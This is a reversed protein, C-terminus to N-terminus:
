EITQRTPMVTYTRMMENDEHDLIHCHWVYGVGNILATPDFPYQNVGPAPAGVGTVPSDQPAWRVVIRTVEGPYTIVTDKWGMEYPLPARRKNLQLFSNIAPNGGIAGDANRINYQNPPGGGPLVGNALMLADYQNIWGAAQFPTRDLVQFSTLHTHMPHADATINIIEWIETDGVAPLETERCLPTGACDPLIPITRM